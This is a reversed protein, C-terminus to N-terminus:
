QGHQDPKLRIWRPAWAPPPASQEPRAEPTSGGHMDAASGPDSVQRDGNAHGRPLARLTRLYFSRHRRRHAQPRKAIGAGGRWLLRRDRPPDSRTRGCDGLPMELAPHGARPGRWPAAGIRHDAAPHIGRLVHVQGGRWEPHRIRRPIRGRAQPASDGRLPVLSGGARLAPPPPHPPLGQAAVGPIAGGPSLRRRDLPAGPVAAGDAEEAPGGRANQPRPGERGPLHQGLVAIPVLIVRPSDPSLPHRHERLLFAPLRVAHHVAGRRDVLCRHRFRLRDTRRPAPGAGRPRRLRAHRLYHADRRRTESM